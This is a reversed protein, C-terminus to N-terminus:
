KEWKSCINEKEKAFLKTALPCDCKTCVFGNIEVIKSDLFDAYKRKEKLDCSQCTKARSLEKESFNGKVHKAIAQFFDKM